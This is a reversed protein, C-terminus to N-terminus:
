RKNRAQWATDPNESFVGDVGLDYFIKYEAFINGYDSDSGGASRLDAPLFANENRFTWPHVLLGVKHADAVLATPKLMNGKADRPLILNKNPGIGQAYKAIEALGDPKVMDLCTRADKKVTFDYPQGEEDVLQILRIKTQEHFRKLTSPEFCQIFVPSKEDVYGNKNLTELLPKETSLGIGAFYTPHKAEPYIGITRHQEESKKKVLDIIQQFTPIEYRDNYITDHQRVKPMRERAHLSKLETLTFDETFWGTKSEGDISKTKKRDAFEPHNSVDTTGSIDNEHRAVLAGDKTPVLDPEVYDAGLDIALEYAALTHEPRYGSAGRHAIILPTRETAAMAPIELLLLSLIWSSILKKVM